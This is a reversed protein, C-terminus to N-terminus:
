MEQFYKITTQGFVHTVPLPLWASNKSSFEIDQVTSLGGEFGYCHSGHSCSKKFLRLM